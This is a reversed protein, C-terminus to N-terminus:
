GWGWAASPIPIPMTYWEEGGAVVPGLVELESGMAAGQAGM